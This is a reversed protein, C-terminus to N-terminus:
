STYGRLFNHKHKVEVKALLDGEKPTPNMMGYEM